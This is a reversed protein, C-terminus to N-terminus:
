GLGYLVGNTVQPFVSSFNPVDEVLTPGHQEGAAAFAEPDAIYINVVAHFAPPPAGPAAQPQILEFRRISAGYLRMILTLHNDRYYDIDFTSGEEAPYLITLTSDGIVAALAMPAGGGASGAGEAMTACGSALGGAGVAGIAALFSRRSAVRDCSKSM